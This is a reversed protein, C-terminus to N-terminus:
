LISHTLIMGAENLTLLAFLLLSALIAPSAVIKSANKKMLMLRKARLTRTRIDNVNHKMVM